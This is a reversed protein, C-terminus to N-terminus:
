SNQTGFGQNTLINQTTNVQKRQAIAKIWDLGSQIAAKCQSQGMKKQIFLRDFDTLLRYIIILSVSKYM